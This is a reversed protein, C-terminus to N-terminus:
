SFMVPWAAQRVWKGDIKRYYIIAQGGCLGPCRYGYGILAETFTQNFVPATYQQVTVPAGRPLAESQAIEAPTAARARGASQALLEPCADILNSAPARGWAWALPASPRPTDKPTGFLIVNEAGAVMAFPTALLLIPDDQGPASGVIQEGLECAASHRPREVDGAARAAVGTVSAAVLAALVSCSKRVAVM